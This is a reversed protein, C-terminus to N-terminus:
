LAEADKQILEYKSRNDNTLVVNKMFDEWKAVLELNPISRAIANVARLASRIMEEHSDLDQKMANDKPKTSITAKLPDILAELTELVAAPALAALKGLMLHCQMKIDNVDKLGDLLHQLFVPVDLSEFCSELIQYMWEFAAKRLDLGDDVKHKFPGMEVERIWEPHLKTEAYVMPLLKPMVPQLLAPKNHAAYNFCLVTFRRVGLDPDQVLVLFDSFIPILAKDISHSHDTITFKLANVATARIPVANSKALERLKPLLQDPYSLSLKGLCEAVVNRTGEEKNQCHQFLLPLVVSLQSSFDNIKESSSSHRSILEKLSHLLLYERNPHDKIDKLIFPVFKALNGVAVNGLAFSAANSLSADESTSDFVSLIVNQIDAHSSLDVRRGIEGLSMLALYIQTSDKSKKIDGIFRDV